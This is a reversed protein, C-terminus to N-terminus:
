EDGDRQERQIYGNRCRTTSKVPLALKVLQNNPSFAGILQIENSISWTQSFTCHWQGFVLILHVLILVFVWGLLISRIFVAIEQIDELISFYLAEESCVTLVHYCHIKVAIRHTLPSCFM